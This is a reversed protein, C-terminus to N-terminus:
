FIWNLDIQFENRIPSYDDNPATQKIKETGIKNIKDFIEISSNAGLKIVVGPKVYLGNGTLKDSGKFYTLNDSGIQLYANVADTVQYAGGVRFAIISDGVNEVSTWDSIRNGKITGGDAEIVKTKDASTLDTIKKGKLSETGSKGYGDNRITIDGRLHATIKGSSYQVLPGIRVYGNREAIQPDTADDNYM